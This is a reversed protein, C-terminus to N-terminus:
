FKTNLASLILVKTEKKKKSKLVYLVTSKAGVSCAGPNPLLHRAPSSHRQGFESSGTWNKKKKSCHGDL